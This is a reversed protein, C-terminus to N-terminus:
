AVQKVDKVASNVVYIRQNNSRQDVPLLFFGQGEPDFNLSTGILIEGDDFQVRIKKGACPDHADGLTFHRRERLAPQGAFDRVVFAAKLEAFPVRV